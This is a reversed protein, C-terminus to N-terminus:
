EKGTRRLGAALSNLVLNTQVWGKTDGCDAVENDGRLQSWLAGHKVQQKGPNNEHCRGLLPFGSQAKTGQSKCKRCFSAKEFFSINLAKENQKVSWMMNNDIDQEM